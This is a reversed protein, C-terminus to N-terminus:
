LTNIILHIQIDYKLIIHVKNEMQDTQSSQRCLQLPRDRGRRSRRGALPADLLPDLPFQPGHQLDLVDGQEAGEHHPQCDGGPQCGRPVGVGSLRDVLARVRLGDPGKPREQVSLGGLEPVLEPSCSRQCREGIM